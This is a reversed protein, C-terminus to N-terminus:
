EITYANPYIVDGDIMNLPQLFSDITVLPTTGALVNNVRLFQDNTFGMPLVVRKGATLLDGNIAGSDVVTTPSSFSDTSDTQLVFQYTEDTTAFDAAVTIVVLLAMPEGIGIERSDTLDIANTSITSGVSSLAQADSFQLTSDLNM